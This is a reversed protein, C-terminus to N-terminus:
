MLWQWYELAICQGQQEEAYAQVEEALDVLLSQSCHLGSRSPRLTWDFIKYIKYIDKILINVRGIHYPLRCTAQFALGLAFWLLFVSAGAWQTKPSKKATSIPQQLIWDILFFCDPVHASSGDISVVNFSFHILWSSVLTLILDLMM